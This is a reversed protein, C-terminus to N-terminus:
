PGLVEDAHALLDEGERGAVVVGAALEDAVGIQGGHVHVPLVVQLGHAFVDPRLEDGPHLLPQVRVGRQAEEEGAAQVGTQHAGDGRLDQALLDAGKGDAHIHVGDVQFVGPLHGVEDAAVM